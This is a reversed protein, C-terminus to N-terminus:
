LLHKQVHQAVVSTLM